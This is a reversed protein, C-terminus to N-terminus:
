LHVVVAFESAGVLPTATVHGAGTLLMEETIIMRVGSVTPGLLTTEATWAIGVMDLGTMCSKTLSAATLFDMAIAPQFFYMFCRDSLPFIVSGRTEVEKNVRTNVTTWLHSHFVRM